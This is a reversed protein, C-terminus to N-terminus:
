FFLTNSYPIDISVILSSFKKLLLNVLQKVILVQKECKCLFFNLKTKSNKKFLLFRQMMCFKKEFNAYM